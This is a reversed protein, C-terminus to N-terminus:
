AFPPILKKLAAKPNRMQQPDFTEMRGLRARIEQFPSLDYKPNSVVLVPTAFVGAAVRTKSEINHIVDQGPREKMMGTKCEFVYLKPGDRIVVDFEAFPNDSSPGGSEKMPRALVGRLVEDYGNQKASWGPYAEIWGNQRILDNCAQNESPAFVKFALDKQEYKEVLNVQKLIDLNRALTDPYKGRITQTGGSTISRLRSFLWAMQGFHRSLHHWLPDFRAEYDPTGKTEMSFGYSALYTEINPFRDIERPEYPEPWFQTITRDKDSDIYIASFDPFSDRLVELAVHSMPKTGGTANLVVKDMGTANSEAWGHLKNRIDGFRTPHVEIIDNEVVNGGVKTLASRLNALQREMDSTTFVVVRDPRVNLAAIVNQVVQASNLCILTVPM